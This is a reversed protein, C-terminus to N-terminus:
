YTDKETRAKFTIGLKEELYQKLVFIEIKRDSRINDLYYRTYDGDFEPPIIKLVRRCQSIDTIEDGHKLNKTDIDWCIISHLNEFSHNFEKNLLRKFEVYYLKSTKIPLTDNAKVIVDIGVHTNYDIITFPFIDPKIAKLQMFMSFVGNEQIPEVLRIGNYDAIKASYIRNIRWAFDKKEKQVSNHSSAESELWELNRWDDSQIIEEYIKSVIKHIDDMIESPTNDISSRNATLRLEQCNFFAHFRTYESGKQTIWENKRQIPIFDKCMWLGYRDQVTYAGVPASYGSRRIMPNYEYKIKNGEIVFVADYHIEPFNELNGSKIIKKCYWKPAETFYEDFLLTVNPSDAHFFHGFSLTEIETRDIGKLKLITNNYKTINFEKEISGMKTFWKIYDKLNEHTFRDRRNNNYEYIIITTGSHDFCEEQSVEVEPTIHEHLKRIPADMVAHYKYNNKITIVEIKSSNLYVKTGHGKEGITESDNRRTSNGLDFFSQLEELDMGSGNDRITIKLMKEGYKNEVNFLIEMDYAGADFANSIAERILDLPNSFDYAIEIFEQTPDVKPEIKFLMDNLHIIEKEIYYM